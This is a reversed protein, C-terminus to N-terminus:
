LMLFRADAELAGSATTQRRMSTNRGSGAFGRDCLGL